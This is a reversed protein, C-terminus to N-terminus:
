WAEFAGRILQVTPEGGQAWEIAVVDFRMEPLPSPQRSLYWRAAQIIRRQKPRTITALPGGWEPSRTSRVEIFCLTNGERAIIDIEGVPFRVNTREIDYGHTALFQAALRESQAGLQQRPTDAHTRKQAM